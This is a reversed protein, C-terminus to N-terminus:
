KEENLKKLIDNLMDVIVLTSMVVTGLIWLGWEVEKGLMYIIIPMLVYM